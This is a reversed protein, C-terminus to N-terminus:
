CIKMLLSYSPKECSTHCVDYIVSATIRGARYSFWMDSKSQMRTNGELRQCQVASVSLDVFDCAYVADQLTDFKLNKDYIDPLKIPFDNDNESAVSFKDIVTFM